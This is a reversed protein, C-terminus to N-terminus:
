WLPTWFPNSLCYVSGVNSLACAGEQYGTISVWGTPAPNQVPILSPQWADNSAGGQLGTQSAAAGLGYTTYALAIIALFVLYAAFKIFKM